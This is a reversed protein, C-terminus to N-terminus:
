IIEIEELLGRPIDKIFRSPRILGAYSTYAYCLYLEDCARTLAVYFLRREEEEDWNKASKISPFQGDNLGIVFVTKWELGKAQHISSLVVHEDKDGNVAAIPQESGQIAMESLFVDTSNYKIAYESLQTLDRLRNDADTFTLFLYKEYSGKLATDIAESPADIKRLESLCKVFAAFQEASKKPAAKGASVVRDLPPADPLDLLYRWIKEATANGIGPLMKLLRKWSIEDYPNSIIRLYALIDKIHAQEFFKMGSRVDYPIGLRTLEMQVEMSQYHSRYLVAIGSLAGGEDVADKIKSAVFLAQERVDELPVLAPPEGSGRVSVLDKRFQRQNAAIASNATNLIQPTSRYNTTLKFIRADPYSQHFNLINEFNAGRFSFISQADDGVAMINRHYASLLGVAEAQLLNTDQYEDVLVHQFRRSYYERIDEHEKLLVVLNHLIDDFDVLNLQRKKKEYLAIVELILAANTELAPFREAIVTAATKSTNRTYSHLDTLVSAKPLLQADKHAAAVATRCTDFLDKTDTRDLISFGDKYGLASAHHKLILNGIHHFTGGWLATVDGGILSAARRMMEKSAKNTFTLLLINSPNVGNEVLWAVRYTLTRTKGTGAGALVLMPGGPCTVAELQERNLEEDFRTVRVSPAKNLVYKKMQYLVM